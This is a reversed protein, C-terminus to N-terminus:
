CRVEQGDSGGCVAGECGGDDGEQSQHLEKEKKAFLAATAEAPFPDQSLVKEAMGTLLSVVSIWLTAAPSGLLQSSLVAALSSLAKLGKKWSWKEASTQKSPPTQRVKSAGRLAAACLSALEGFHFVPASAAAVAGETQQARRFVGGASATSKLAASLASFSHAPVLYNLLLGTFPGDLAASAAALCALRLRLSLTGDNAADSVAEFLKRLGASLNPLSPARRRIAWDLPAEADRGDCGEQHTEGYRSHMLAVDALRQYLRALVGALRVAAELLGEAVAATEAAEESAEEASPWSALRGAASARLKPNSVLEFAVEFLRPCPLSVLRELQRYVAEPQEAAEACKAHLLLLREVFSLIRLLRKAELVFLTRPM